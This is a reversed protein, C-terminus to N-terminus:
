HGAGSYEAKPDVTFVAGSKESSAVFSFRESGGNPLKWFRITTGGQRDVLARMSM